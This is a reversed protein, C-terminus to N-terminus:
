KLIDALQLIWCVLLFVLGVIICLKWWRKVSPQPRFDWSGPNTTIEFPLQSLVVKAEAEVSVPVLVAFFRGPGPAAIIPMAVKLGTATEARVQHPIRAEKLANVAIDFAILQGTCFVIVFDTPAEAM